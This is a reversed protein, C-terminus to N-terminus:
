LQMISVDNQKQPSFSVGSSGQQAAVHAGHGASKLTLGHSDDPKLTLGHSDTSKLENFKSPM